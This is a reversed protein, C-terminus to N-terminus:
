SKLTYKVGGVILESLSRHDVLRLPTGKEVDLDEVKSRGRLPDPEVLRGRLKRTEGSEKKFTCTFPRNYARMLTEIMESQSVKEETSWQDASWSTAILEDGNVSFSDPAGAIGKVQLQTEGQKGWQGSSPRNKAMVKGWYIFACLEGTKVKDPDVRVM